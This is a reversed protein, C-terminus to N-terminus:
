NGDQEDKGRAIISWTRPCEEKFKKRERMTSENYTKMEPFEKKLRALKSANM